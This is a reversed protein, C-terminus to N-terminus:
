PGPGNTARATATARRYRVIVTVADGARTFSILTAGNATALRAAAVRGDVVGAMAAADAAAQARQRDVVASGAVAAAVVVVAAVAVAVVILPM